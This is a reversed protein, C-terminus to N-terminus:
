GRGFRPNVINNYISGFTYSFGVAARYTYQTALQQQRTLIEELSAEGKPLYLQDHVLGFSGSFWLSMGKILRFNFSTSLRVSNKSFDHLYNGGYASLNISGWKKRVQYAVSLEQRYLSEELKNYITTDIYHNLELGVQYLFRMQRVTAEEYPFLNYEVAPKLRFYLDYNKYTSHGLSTRGGWSWHDNIAFVILGDASYQKTYSQIAYDDSIKYNTYRYSYHANLDVIMEETVKSARVSESTNLSQYSSEAKLSGSMGITFIWNRWKDKVVQLNTEHQVQREPLVRTLDMADFAQTRSIFPMLGALLYKLMLNRKQDLSTNPLTSFTLTDKKNAFQKQGEFIITYTEGGNGARQRVSLIYVEADRYDRVYNVITLNDRIYQRDIFDGDLYIKILKEYPVLQANVTMPILFSLLLFKFGRM